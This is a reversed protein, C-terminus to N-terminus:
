STSTGSTRSSTTSGPCGSRCRAGDRRPQAPLLLLRARDRPGCVIGGIASGAGSPARDIPVEFYLASDEFSGELFKHVVDDVGPIQIVGAFLAGFGLVSMAIKM